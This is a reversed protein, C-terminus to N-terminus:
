FFPKIVGSITTLASLIATFGSWLAGQASLIMADAVEQEMQLIHSKSGSIHKERRPVHQSAKWWFWAARLATMLTALALTITIVLWRMDNM